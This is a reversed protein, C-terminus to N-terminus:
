SSEKTADIIGQCIMLDDDHSKFVIRMGEKLRAQKWLNYALAPGDIVLSPLLESETGQDFVIRTGYPQLFTHLGSIGMLCQRGCAHEAGFLPVDFHIDDLQLDEAVDLSIRKDFAGFM